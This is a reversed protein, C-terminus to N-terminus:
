PELLKTAEVLIEKREYKVGLHACAAQKERFDLPFMDFYQLVLARLVLHPLANESVDKALEKLDGFPFEGAHDLKLSFDFLRVVPSTPDYVKKYTRALHRSGVSISVRKVIAFTTSAVLAGVIEDARRVIKKMEFAPHILSVIRAIEATLATNNSRILNLYWGLFRRGLGYCEQVIEIKRQSELTGPFNKVIQGLLRMSAIVQAARVMDASQEQAAQRDALVEAERQRADMAAFEAKRAEEPDRELFTKSERELQELGASVETESPVLSAPPVDAMLARAADILTGIV